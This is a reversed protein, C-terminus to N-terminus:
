RIIKAAHVKVCISRIRDGDILTFFLATYPKGSSIVSAAEEVIKSKISIPKAYSRCGNSASDKRNCNEANFQHLLDKIAKTRCFLILRVNFRVQQPVKFKALKSSAWSQFEKANLTNGDKLVIAVGIDQGYMDDKVAFSVVESISSHQSFVNDLEIPSIKEGGKNILEKIRGTIFIYGQSDKKGQDGTRFFGNRTFSSKNSEANNIYGNTVNAGRICIEGVAGEGVANANEDLVEVEVGQGVGVSGPKRSQPPLPNSTMQHAAETMAYAELVPAHLVEELEYFTKPSLPSSCSRIFRIKPVPSPITSKLLIQHITPVATYWNAEYDIYNNWFTSASFKIPVIVSGGSYLPALLGALLGHVHFLPM